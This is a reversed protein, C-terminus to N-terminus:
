TNSVEAVTTTPNMGPVSIDWVGLLAGVYGYLVKEASGQAAKGTLMNM